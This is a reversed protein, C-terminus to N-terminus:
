FRLQLKNIFENQRNNEIELDDSLKQFNRRIYSFDIFNCKMDIMFM